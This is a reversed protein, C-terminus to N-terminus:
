NDDDDVDDDDDDDRSVGRVEVPCCMYLCTFSRQM